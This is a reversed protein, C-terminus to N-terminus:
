KISCEIVLLHIDDGTVAGCEGVDDEDKILIIDETEVDGQQPLCILMFVKFFNFLYTVM